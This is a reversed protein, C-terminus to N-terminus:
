FLRPLIGSGGGRKVFAAIQVVFVKAGCANMVKDGLPHANGLQVTCLGSNLNAFM